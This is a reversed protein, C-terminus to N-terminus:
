SRRREEITKADAGRLYLPAPPALPSVARAALDAVAYPDPYALPQIDMGSPAEVLSAAPGLIRLPRAIDRLRELLGELNHTEPPALPEGDRSVMLHIRGRGGDIVTATWGKAPASALLAAFADVGVCPRGLALAFGKAFAIGVRLGTFSGPGVVVGVRDIGRPPRGAALLANRALGSIAEQHGREMPHQLAALRVGDEVVAASAAGLATDIGLVLM